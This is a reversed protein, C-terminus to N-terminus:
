RGPLTAPQSEQTEDRRLWRRVAKRWGAAMPDICGPRQRRLPDARALDAAAAARDGENVMTARARRYFAWALPNEDRFWRHGDLLASVTREFGEDVTDPGLFASCALARRIVMRSRADFRFRERGVKDYRMLSRTEDCHWAGLLHGIEHAITERDYYWADGPRNPRVILARGFYPGYGRIYDDAAPDGRASSQGTLVVILGPESQKGPPDGGLGAVVEDLIPPLDPADDRSACPLVATVRFTTGFERLYIASAAALLGRADAQWHPRERYEEDALVRVPVVRLLRREPTTALYARWAEAASAATPSWEATELAASLAQASRRAKGGLLGIGVCSGAVSALVAGLILYPRAARPVGLWAHSM